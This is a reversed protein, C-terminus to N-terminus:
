IKTGSDRLCEDYVAMGVRTPLQTRNHWAIDGLIAIIKKGSTTSVVNVDRQVILAFTKVEKPKLISAYVTYETVKSAYFTCLKMKDFLSPQVQAFTSTSVMLLMAALLTKMSSWSTIFSHDADISIPLNDVKVM